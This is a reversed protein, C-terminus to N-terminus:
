PVPTVELGDSLDINTTPSLAVIDGESLGSTIEERSLNFTGVKVPTRVLKNHVIRYVYLQAGEDHLALRPISLVHIRRATTVEVMVNANPQLVGDADDVDIFCEGVNRTGYTIITTPALTIHGHWTMGPKALWTITIPQGVALDGIEPEDFYATIRLHKLDAVYVLDNSDLSVYDYQSVPLYYVTGSIPTRIDASAYARQAAAVAAHADALQAQARARDAEGYRQASHQQISHLTNEDLQVRARAVDVEASSAAGKKRLEQLATFSAVDEHLQLQTRSQDSAYTNREDQTGGQEIDSTALEAARLASNASALRALADADDMKLLLQGAHVKDGVDVYIAQVQGAVQAHAQYDDMPEVKGTTSSSKVIDQYSVQATHISVHDRTLLRIANLALLIVILIAGGLLFQAARNPKPTSTMDELTLIYSTKGHRVFCIDEQGTSFL